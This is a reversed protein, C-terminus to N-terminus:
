LDHKFLEVAKPTLNQGGITSLFGLRMLRPQVITKYSTRDIGTASCLATESMKYRIEGGVLRQESSLLAEIVRRDERFLGYEDVGLVDFAKHASEIDITEKEKSVSFDKATNYLVIVQWPLGGSRHALQTAAEAECPFPQDNIIDVLVEEGPPDLQIEPALRRRLAGGTTGDLEGPETTAAIWSVTPPVDIWGKNDSLPYRPNGTDALTHYLPEAGVNNKLIHVEDIFVIDHDRLNAMFLDLDQKTEMQAPLIEFFRGIPLLLAHQRKQIRYAIIWALTTKGTGATGSILTKLRNTKDLAGIKIDLLEKAHEQGRFPIGGEEPYFCNPARPSFVLQTPALGSTGESQAEKAHEKEWKEWDQRVKDIVQNYTNVVIQKNSVPRSGIFWPSFSM